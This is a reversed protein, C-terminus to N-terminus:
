QKKEVRRRKTEIFINNDSLMAICFSHHSTIIQQFFETLILLLQHVKVAFAQM